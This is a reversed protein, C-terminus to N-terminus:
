SERCSNENREASRRTRANHSESEPDAKEARSYKKYFFRPRERPIFEAIYLIIFDSSDYKYKSRLANKEQEVHKDEM